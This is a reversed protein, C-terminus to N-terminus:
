HPDDCIWCLAGQQGPDPCFEPICATSYCPGSCNARYCALQTGCTGSQTAGLPLLGYGLMGALVVGIAVLGRRISRAM